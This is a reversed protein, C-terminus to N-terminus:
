GRAKENAFAFVVYLLIMSSSFLIYHSNSVAGDRAEVCVNVCPSSFDIFQAGIQEAASFFYAIGV